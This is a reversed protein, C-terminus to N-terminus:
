PQPRMPIDTLRGRPIQGDKDYFPGDVILGGDEYCALGYGCRGVRLERIDRTLLKNLLRVARSVQDIPLVIVKKAVDHEWRHEGAFPVRCPLNMNETNTVSPM